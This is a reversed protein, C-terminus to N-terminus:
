PVGRPRPVTRTLPIEGAAIRLIAETLAPAGGREAQELLWVTASVASDGQGIESVVLDRWIPVPVYGIVVDDTTPQDGALEEDTRDPVGFRAKLGRSWTLQRAGRMGDCYARWLKVDEARGRRALDYAIELPTRNAGHAVKTGPDVLELGLKSLYAAVHCPALSLGHEDDPTHEAGVYRAVMTQWREIAWGRAGHPMWERRKRGEDDELEIVERSAIPEELLLLVHLHPHWGNPGRTVELARIAGIVGLRACFRKWPAGRTMGRWADALKSRLERLDDDWAHRITLSLMAVRDQGHRAVVHAVEDSRRAV